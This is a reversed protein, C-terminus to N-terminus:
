RSTDEHGKADMEKSPTYKPLNSPNCAFPM